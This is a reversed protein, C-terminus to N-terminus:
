EQSNQSGEPQSPVNFGLDDKTEDAPLLFDWKDHPALEDTASERHFRIMDAVITLKESVDATTRLDASALLVEGLHRDTADLVKTIAEVRSRDVLGSAGDHRLVAIHSDGGCGVVHEKAQSLIYAALIVCEHLTPRYMRAALYDVMYSGIGGSCYEEVENVVPGYAQFLRSDQDHKVGYILEVSPCLGQQFITGYEQYENKITAEMQDCAEDLSSADKANKWAKSTLHDIFAGDGAGCFSVAVSTGSPDASHIYRREVKVKNVNRKSFDTVTEQTDACIVIGDQCRFGAIVTM